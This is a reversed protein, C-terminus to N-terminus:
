QNMTNLDINTKTKLIEVGHDATICTYRNSDIKIM